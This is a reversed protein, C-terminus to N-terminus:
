SVGIVADITCSSDTVTGTGKASIKIYRAKIAVPIAYFGTAVMKHEGLTDTSVGGSVNSFSEQYYNTGDSSFEIKVRLDDLSGITFNVMVVLQNSLQVDSLVTGAVYNNTLIAASRVSNTKWEQNQM